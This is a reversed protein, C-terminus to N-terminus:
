EEIRAPDKRVLDGPGVTDGAEQLLGTVIDKARQLTAEITRLGRGHNGSELALKTAALGQVVADNLALAHKRNGANHAEREATIQQEIRKKESIDRAIVAAEVVDGDANHVPSVSVSVEVESGDKRVRRTEYHEVRNGALIQRLIDLEEGARDKPVLMSIPRGIAEEPTYGYLREAAPNWSTIVADADKSYIADDSSRVIAALADVADRSLNTWGGEPDGRPM